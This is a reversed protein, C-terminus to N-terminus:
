VGTRIAESIRGAIHPALEGSAIVLAPFHSERRFWTLQRKAYNRTQQQIRVICEAESIGGALLTQIERWGIAQAATASLAPVSRVEEAVGRAFMEQVRADIRWYLEDRDRTTVFGCVQKLPETQERFSSFPRGTLLTVELARIVRRPNRRDISKAGEPDRERLRRVLESLPQQELEARLAADAPPLDAL